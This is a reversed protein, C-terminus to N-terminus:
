PFASKILGRGIAIRPNNEGNLALLLPANIGRGVRKRERERLENNERERKVMRMEKSM